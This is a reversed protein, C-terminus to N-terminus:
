ICRGSDLSYHVIGPGSPLHHLWSCTVVSFSLSDCYLAFCIPSFDSYTYIFVTFKVQRCAGGAGLDASMKSREGEGGM